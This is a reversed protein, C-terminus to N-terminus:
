DLQKVGWIKGIKAKLDHYKEGEKEYNEGRPFLTWVLQRKKGSEKEVTIIDPRRAEIVHYRVTCDYGVVSRVGTTKWWVKQDTNDKNM